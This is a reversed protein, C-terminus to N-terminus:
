DAAAPRVEIIAEAVKAAEAKALGAAYRAEDEKAAEIYAVRVVEAAAREDSISKVLVGFIPLNAQIAKRDMLIEVGFRRADANFSPNAITDALLGNNMSGILGHTQERTIAM